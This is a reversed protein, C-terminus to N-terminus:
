TAMTKLHAFRMKHFDSSSQFKMDHQGTHKLANVAHERVMLIQAVGVLTAAWEYCQSAVAQQNEFELVRAYSLKCRVRIKKVHNKDRKKEEAKMWNEEFTLGFIFPEQRVAGCM